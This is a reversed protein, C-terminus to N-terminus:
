INKLLLYFIYSNKVTHCLSLQYSAKLFTKFLKKLGPPCKSGFDRPILRLCNIKPYSYSDSNKKLFKEQFSKKFLTKFFKKDTLSSFKEKLKKARAKTHLFKFFM